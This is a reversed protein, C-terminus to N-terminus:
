IQMIFSPLFFKSPSKNIIETVPHENSIPIIAMDITNKVEKPM